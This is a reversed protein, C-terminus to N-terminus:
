YLKVSVGLMPGLVSVKTELREEGSGETQKYKFTRFGAHVAITRSVKFSNLYTFDLAFDSSNGIGFGGINLDASLDFKKSIVFKPNIGIMLDWWEQKENLTDENIVTNGIVIQYDVDINNLWYKAGLNVRLSWGKIVYDEAFQFNDYVEYAGKFGFIKQNVTLDAIFPGQAFDSGLEAFTGDFSLSYKKYSVVGIIQFGGNTLSALDNFSQRISQGGVDTSQSALLAYPAIHFSWDKEKHTSESVSTQSLAKTIFFFTLLCIFVINKTKITKM